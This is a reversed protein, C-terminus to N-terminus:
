LINVRMRKVRNSKPIFFILPPLPAFKEDDEPLSPIRVLGILEKEMQQEAM